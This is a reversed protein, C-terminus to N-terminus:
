PRVVAHSVFLPSSAAGRRGRPDGHASPARTFKQQPYTLRPTRQFPVYTLWGGGLTSGIAEIPPPRDSDRQHCRVCGLHDLLRQRSAFPSPHKERVAVTRYAALAKRTPADVSFRPLTRGSLCGRSDDLAKLPIDAPISEGLGPHCQACHKERLLAAASAAVGRVDLRRSVAAIEEATPPKIAEETRAPKSWMSVYAAIDRAMDQAVPLRPMRGDPYRAHPNGLFAALEEAPLRDNLGTLPTRGFDPQTSREQDPLFHCTACGISIFARRGLRHDGASPSRKSTTSSGLLHETLIWREVFGKRDAAFLAPMRADPRVKVPDGLWDLFWNRNIRRRADALSPGPPSETLGPFAGSHCRACGIRGVAARGKEALQDQLADPTLDAALHKLQWTPLPERPFTSGQWWIQLRAPKDPLSRYRIRLRYLGQPRKLPEKSSIQATESNGRGQLVTVGDVKMTVDGCLYAAFTLPIPETLNLVGTWVVEFPGPAIRPHPSSNGLHFAPKADIRYLTADKDALSRYHAVLGPRLDEPEVDLSGSKEPGGYLPVGNAGILLVVIAIRGCGAEM